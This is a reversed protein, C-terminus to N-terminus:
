VVNKIQTKQDFKNNDNKQKSSTKTREILKLGIWKMKPFASSNRSM